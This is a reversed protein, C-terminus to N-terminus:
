EGRDAARAGVAPTRVPHGRRRGSPVLVCPTIPSESIDFVQRKLGIFGIGSPISSRAGPSVPRPWGFILRRAPAMNNGFSAMWVAVVQCGWDQMAVLAGPWGVFLLEENPCLVLRRLGGRGLFGSAFGM